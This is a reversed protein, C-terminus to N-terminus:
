KNDGRALENRLKILLTYCDDNLDDTCHKVFYPCKFCYGNLCNEIGKIFKDLEEYM